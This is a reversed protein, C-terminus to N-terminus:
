MLLSSTNGFHFTLVLILHFYYGAIANCRGIRAKTRRSHGAELEVKEKCAIVGEVRKKM